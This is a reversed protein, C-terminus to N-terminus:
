AQISHPKNAAEGANRIPDDVNGGQLNSCIIMVPCSAHHLVRETIDGLLNYPPNSQCHKTMVILNIDQAESIGIIAGAEDGKVLVSQIDIGQGSIEDITEMLYDKGQSYSPDETHTTWFWNHNDIQDEFADRIIVSACTCLLVLTGNYKKVLDLAPIIANEAVRSGDLPVLIKKFM